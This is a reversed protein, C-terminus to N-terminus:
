ENKGAINDAIHGTQIETKLKKLLKAYERCKILEWRYVYDVSSLSSDNEKLGTLSLFNAYNKEYEETLKGKLENINKLQTDIFALWENKSLAGSLFLQVLFSDRSIFDAVTNQRILKLNEERGR